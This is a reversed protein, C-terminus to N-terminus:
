RFLKRPYEGGCDKRPEAAEVAGFLLHESLQLGGNVCKNGHAWDRM